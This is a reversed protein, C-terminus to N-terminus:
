SRVSAAQGLLLSGRLPPYIDWTHSLQPWQMCPTQLAPPPGPPPCNPFRFDQLHSRNPVHEIAELMGAQDVHSVAGGPKCHSTSGKSTPVMFPAGSVRAVWEIGSCRARALVCPHGQHLLAGQGRVLQTNNETGGLSM